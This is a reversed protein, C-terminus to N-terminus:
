EEAYAPHTKSIIDKGGRRDRSSGSASLPPMISGRYRRVPLGAFLVVTTGHTGRIV